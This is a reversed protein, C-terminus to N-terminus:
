KVITGNFREVQQQMQIYQEKNHPSFTISLTDKEIAMTYPVTLRINWNAWAGSLQSLKWTATFSSTDTEPSDFNISKPAVLTDFVLPSNILKLPEAYSISKIHKDTADYYFVGQVRLQNLERHPFEDFTNKSVLKYDNMLQIERIPNDKKYSEVVLDSVPKEDVKPLDVEKILITDGLNQLLDKAEQLSIRKGNYYATIFADLIGKEIVEAKKPRADDISRFTGTSYRIQGNDLRLTVLPTIYHLQEDTAPRNYVGVQVTFYLGRIEEAAIALAAGDAKNYDSIKPTTSHQVQIEQPLQAITNEIQEMVIQNQPMPKCLGKDELERAEALQIRKGDCYAVVFADTYGLARIDKQAQLVKQRDGFYGALYRTIGNDLKEGTVPTFEHFLDEPIPKAFAGVQVRYVLGSPAKVGIPITKIVTNETKLQNDKKIEFGQGIEPAVLETLAVHPKSVPLERVLVNKWTQLNVDLSKLQTELQLELREIDTQKKSIQAYLSEIEKQITDKLTTRTSNFYENKLTDVLKQLQLAQWKEKNIQQQKERFANYNKDSTINQEEEQTIQTKLAVDKTTDFVPEDRLKDLQKNIGEVVQQIGVKEQELETKRESSIASIMLERELEGIEIEFRRKLSKLQTESLLVGKNEDYFKQSEIASNTADLLTLVATREVVTTNPMSATRQLVINKVPNDTNKKSLDDSLEVIHARLEENRLETKIKEQLAQSAQNKELQKSLEVKEKDSANVIKNNLAEEEQKLAKLQVDPNITQAIVLPKEIAKLTSEVEKKREQVTKLQRKLDSLNATDPVNKKSEAEIFQNINGELENLTSLQKNAEESNTVKKNMTFEYEDGLTQYLSQPKNSQMLEAAQDVLKQLKQERDKSQDILKDLVVNEAALQSNFSTEIQTSNQNKSQTLLEQLKKEEQISSQISQSTLSHTSDIKLPKFDLVYKNIVDAEKVNSVQHAIALQKKEAVSESHTEILQTIRNSETLLEANQEDAKLKADVRTKQDSLEKVLKSEEAIILDQKENNPKVQKEIEAVTQAYNQELKDSSVTKEESAVLPQNLEKSRIAINENFQEVIEKLVETRKTSIVDNKLSLVDIENQIKITSLSDLTNLEQLKKKADLSNAKAKKNEYDPLVQKMESDITVASVADNQKNQITNLAEQKSNLEDYFKTKLATLADKKSQANANLPDKAISDYVQELANDIKDLLDEIHQIQNTLRKQENKDKSLASQKEEFTPDLELLIREESVAATPQNTIDEKGSTNQTLQEKQNSLQQQKAVIQKKQENLDSNSPNKALESELVRLESALKNEFQTINKLQLLQKETSTIGEQKELATQSLQFDSEMLEVNKKINNAVVDLSNQGNEEPNIKEAQQKVFSELTRNNVSNVSNLKALAEEKTKIPSNSSHQLSSIFSIQNNNEDYEKSLKSNKTELRALEGDVLKMEAIKADIKSQIAEQDKAKAQQKSLELDKLEKTLQAKNKSYEAEQSKLKTIENNLERNDQELKEIPGGQNDNNIALIVAKNESFLVQVESYKEAILKSNLSDNFAAIQKTKMTEIPLLKSLSDSYALSKEIETKLTHIRDVKNSAEIILENKRIESDTNNSEAVNKKIEAQLKEIEIAKEYANTTAGAVIQQIGTSKLEQKQVIKEYKALIQQNSVGDLGINALIKDRDKSTNLDNLNFSSANVNLESKKQLEVALADESLNNEIKLPVREVRVKYVHIKGNESQRSSAFYANEGLSDAIYFLDDAPTSVAFDMNEVDSFTESEKNYKARFVDYGGMSNHGKSSFYLYNGNPALYPYDEDSNTNVSGQIPKPMGWNGDVMRQRYYIDKHGNDKDGYSSYFVIKANDPFHILPVHGRKKDVKSQFNATVLIVGGINSLNYLRFFSASEVEKKEFVILDLLNKLLLKGNNCMEIQRQTEFSAKPKSGSKQLYTKYNKIAEDFQFSLHYAKGLFYYAEPNVLSDLVSFKLYKLADQKRYSNFLLCSGYRFNYESSRPDLAILRLYLPTAEVFKEKHFLDDAETKITLESDQAFSYSVTLSFLLFLVRSFLNRLSDLILWNYTM